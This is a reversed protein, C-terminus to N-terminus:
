PTDMGQTLAYNIVFVLSLLVFIITQWSNKVVCQFHQIYKKNKGRLRAM